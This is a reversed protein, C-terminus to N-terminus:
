LYKKSISKVLENKYDLDSTAKFSGKLSKVVPTIEIEPVVDEKTIVKLYNEVIGSLSKGKDKAYKKANEIVSQEITLTLKANM